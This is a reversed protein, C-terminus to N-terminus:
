KKAAEIVKADQACVRAAALICSLFILLSFSKM